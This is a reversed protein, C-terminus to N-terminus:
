KCYKNLLHKIPHESFPLTIEKAKEKLVPSADGVAVGYWEGDVLGIDNTSDGVAIIRNYPVGYTKALYKVAFGKHYKSNIFEILHEAGSNVSVEKFKGTYRTVDKIPDKDLSFACVKNVKVGLELVKKELDDVRECLVGNDAVFLSVYKSLNSYYLVDDIWVVFDLGDKKIERIIELATELPVGEKLIYDGSEIDANTSGQFSVVKGKLGYKRCIGRISAFSRGTVITFIGGREEYEKIAKVTDLDIYDPNGGLTGDFDSLFLDFKM